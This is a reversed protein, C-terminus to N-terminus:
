YKMEAKDRSGLERIFCPAPLVPILFNKIAQIPYGDWKVKYQWDPGDPLRDVRDRAHSPCFCSPPAWDNNTREPQASKASWSISDNFLAHVIWFVVSQSSHLRKRGLNHASNRTALTYFRATPKRLVLVLQPPSNVTNVKHYLTFELVTLISRLDLVSGRLESWSALSRPNRARRRLAVRIPTGAPATLETPKM